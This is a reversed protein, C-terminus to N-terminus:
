WACVNIDTNASVGAGDTKVDYDIQMGQHWKVVEGITNSPGIAIGGGWGSSIVTDNILFSFLGDSNRILSVGSSSM